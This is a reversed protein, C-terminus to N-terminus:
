RARAGRALLGQIGAMGQDEFPKGTAPNIQPRPNTGTFMGGFLAQLPNFPRMNNAMAYGMQEAGPMGSGALRNRELEGAEGSWPDTFLGMYAEYQGPRRRKLEELSADFMDGSSYGQVGGAFTSAEPLYSSGPDMGFASAAGRINNGAAMQMPSMAAVDPGYDPVYGIEAVRRARDLNYKAADEAWGPISQEMEVTSSGGKSGGM